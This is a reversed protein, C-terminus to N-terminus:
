ILNEDDGDDDDNDDSADDDDADGDDVVDGGSENVDVFTQGTGSSARVYEWDIIKQANTINNNTWSTLKPLNWSMLNRRGLKLKGEDTLGEVGRTVVDDDAGLENMMRKHESVQMKSNIILRKPEDVLIAIEEKAREYSLLAQMKKYREQDTGEFGLMEGVWFGNKVDALETVSKLQTLGCKAVHGSHLRQDIFLLNAVQFRITELAELANVRGREVNLTTVLMPDNAPPIPIGLKSALSNMLAEKEKKQTRLTQIRSATSTTALAEMNELQYVDIVTCIFKEGDSLRDQIVTGNIMQDVMVKCDRRLSDEDELSLPDGSGHIQFLSLNILNQAHKYRKVLAAGLNVLKQNKYHRLASDLTLRRHAKTMPRTVKTFGGLYSWLREMCEGDTLGFGDIYRPIYKVQCALSHGFAHFIGLALQIDIKGQYRQISKLLRCGIDYMMTFKGQSSYSYKKVIASIIPLPYRFREGATTMDVFYQPVAHRACSSGFLGTIDYRDSKQVCGNEATYTSACQHRTDGNDDVNQHSENDSDEYKVFFGSNAKASSHADNRKRKLSFNGDMCFTRSEPNCALCGDDDGTVVKEVSKMMILYQYHATRFGSPLRKGDYIRNALMKSFGDFSAFLFNRADGFLGLLEVHFATKPFGPTAPFLHYKKILTEGDHHLCFPLDREVIRSLYYCKVKVPLDDMFIDPKKSACSIIYAKVLKPMLSAWKKEDKIRVSRLAGQSFMAGDDGSFDLADNGTTSPAVSERVLRTGSSTTSTRAKNITVKHVRRKHHETQLLPIARRLPGNTVLINQKRYKRRLM